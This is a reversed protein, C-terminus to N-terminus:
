PHAFVYFFLLMASAVTLGVGFEVLFIGLVQGGVPLTDYDLFRGDPMCLLGVGLYLLLGLAMGARAWSIPLIRQVNRVGFFLAYLIFGAAFVVGAQFGGGPSYEGHMQLYLAFLLIFPMLLRGVARLVLHHEM